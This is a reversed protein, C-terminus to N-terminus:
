CARVLGQPGVGLAAWGFGVRPDKPAVNTDRAGGTRQRSVTASGAMPVWSMAQTACVNLPDRLTSAATLVSPWGWPVNTWM